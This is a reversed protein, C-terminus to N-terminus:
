LFISAVFSDYGEMRHKKKKAMKMLCEMRRHHNNSTVIIHDIRSPPPPHLFICDSPHPSGPLASVWKGGKVSGDEYVLNGMGHPIKEGNVEGTYRGLDGSADEFIMNKVVRAISNYMDKYERLAQQRQAERSSSGGGSNGKKSSAGGPMMEKDRECKGNRPSQDRHSASKKQNRGFRISSTESDTDSYDLSHRSGRGRSSSKRSVSKRSRASRRSDRSSVSRSDDQEDSCEACVHQIIKWGGTLKNSRNTGRNLTAVFLAFSTGDINHVKFIFVSPSLNYVWRRRPLDSMPIGTAIGKM